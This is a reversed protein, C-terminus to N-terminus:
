KILPLLPYLHLAGIQQSYDRTIIKLNNLEEHPLIYPIEPYMCEEEKQQSLNSMTPTNETHRNDQSHSAM